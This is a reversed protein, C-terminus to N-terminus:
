PNPSAYSGGSSGGGGPACTRRGRAADSPEAVGVRETEITVACVASCEADPPAVGVREREITVACVVSGAAEGESRADEAVVDGMAVARVERAETGGREREIGREGLVGGGAEADVTVPAREGDITVARDAIDV